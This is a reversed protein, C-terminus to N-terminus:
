LESDLPLLSLLKAENRQGDSRAPESLLEVPEGDRQTHWSLQRRDDAAGSRLEVHYANEPRAMADFRAAIQRALEPSDIILGVETNLHMSRQDFNMSGIFVSRRDFVFLKAHLAYNGHSAMAASQGSGRVDGLRSRIEYLEVGDALLSARYHMYGAQALLMTSAELSSTLIRVRVNRQRLGRLMEMGERGPILYPSIMLLESQVAQVARAVPRRMLKGVAWGQEVGRKDPSDCVVRATAWVLPSSGDLLGVLPEDAARRQSQELGAVVNVAHQPTRDAVADVAAARAARRGGLAGAPIAMASNWYDDFTASLEQVV